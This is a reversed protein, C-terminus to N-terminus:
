LPLASLFLTLGYEVVEVSSFLASVKLVFLSFKGNMEEGNESFKSLINKTTVFNKMVTYNFLKSSCSVNRIKLDSDM